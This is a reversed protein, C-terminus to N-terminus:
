EVWQAQMQTAATTVEEVEVVWLVAAEQTVVVPTVEQDPHLCTPHSVRQHLQLHGPQHQIPPVLPHLHDAVQVTQLLLVPLHLIVAVARVTPHNHLLVTQHLAGAEEEMQETVM